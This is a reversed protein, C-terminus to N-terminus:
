SYAPRGIGGQWLGGDDLSLHEVTEDLYARGAGGKPWASVQIDLYPELVGVKVRGVAAYALCGWRKRPQGGKREYAVKLFSAWCPIM